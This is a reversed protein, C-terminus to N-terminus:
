GFFVCYHVLRLKTGELVCQPKYDEFRRRFSQQNHQRVDDKAGEALCVQNNQRLSTSAIDFQWCEELCRQVMLPPEVRFFLAIRSLRVLLM